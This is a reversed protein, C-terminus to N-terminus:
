KVNLIQRQYGEILNLKELKFGNIDNELKKEFDERTIWMENKLQEIEENTYIPQQDWEEIIEKLKLSPPDDLRLFTNKHEEQCQDLNYNAM